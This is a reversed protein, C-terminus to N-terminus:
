RYYLKRNSAQSRRCTFLGRVEVWYPGIGILMFRIVTKTKKVHKSNM